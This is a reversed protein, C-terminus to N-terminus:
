RSGRSLLVALVGAGRLGAVSVYNNDLFTHPLNLLDRNDYYTAEVAKLAVGILGAIGGAAILGSAFLSGPSIDENESPKAQASPPQSRGALPSRRRLLHAAHHRHASLRRRRLAALPHRAARRRHGALRRAPGTGLATQPQPHRQHRHGHAPGAARARQRLRHGSDLPGRHPADRALLSIQRGPARNLRHRQPPHIRVEPTNTASKGDPGIVRFKMRSARHADARSPSAPTRPTSTGPQSAAHFEQLGINMLNLTFGIVLTSVVVGIMLAIQQLRPTSGVIYGTKLDQSTDGSNSAAICVVGGITIALAGFAPATWGQVLFVAATAMLTAITMGSVPSASSGVLGVIRSSVTVFLFGFVVVLLSAALNAAWGVFAGPVPKFELFIFMCVVILLSGILVVSMSLDDETRIPKAQAAAAGPRMTKIGATLASWITPLTKILTIVGAAAVAGAGMPKIYTAWLDSPGM